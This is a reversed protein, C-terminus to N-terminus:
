AETNGAPQVRARAKDVGQLKDVPQHIDTVGLGQGAMRGGGGMALKIRIFQFGSADALIQDSQGDANLM